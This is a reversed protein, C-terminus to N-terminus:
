PQRITDARDDMSTPPLASSNTIPQQTSYGVNSSIPSMAIASSAPSIHPGQVMPALSPGPQSSPVMGKPQFAIDNLSVNMCCLSGTQTFISSIDIHYESPMGIAVLATRTSDNLGIPSDYAQSIGRIAFTHNVYYDRDLYSPLLPQFDRVTLLNQWDMSDVPPLRALGSADAQFDTPMNMYGIPSALQLTNPWPQCAAFGLDIAVYDGNAGQCAVYIGVEINAAYLSM